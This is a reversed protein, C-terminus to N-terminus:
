SFFIGYIISFNCLSVIYDSRKSVDLILNHVVWKLIMMTNKNSSQIPNHFCGCPVSKQLGPSSSLWLDMLDSRKSVDLILNHVVWKLIMMTNKYFCGCPVSKQSGPSSSLWLDV